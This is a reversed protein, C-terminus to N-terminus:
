FDKSINAKIVLFKTLIHILSLDRSPYPNPDDTVSKTENKKKLWLGGGLLM